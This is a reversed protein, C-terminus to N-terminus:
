FLFLLTAASFGAVIVAWSILARWNVTSAPTYHRQGHGGRMAGQGSGAAALRKLM